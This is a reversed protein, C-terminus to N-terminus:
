LYEGLLFINEAFENLCEDLKLELKEKEMEGYLHPPIDPELMEDFLEEENKIDENKIIFNLIQYAM